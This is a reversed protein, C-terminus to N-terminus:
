IEKMWMGHNNCYAYVAEPKEESLVFRVRPEDGAYLCKRHGGRDTQLYVWEISHDNEMPHAISGVDVAVTDGSINVVPMHKEKGSENKSAELQEMPEGCCEVAVGSDEILGMINGCHRCIYFRNECM